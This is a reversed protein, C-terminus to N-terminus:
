QSFLYQRTIYMSVSQEDTVMNTDINDSDMCSAETQSQQLQDTVDTDTINFRILNGMVKDLSNYVILQPHLM